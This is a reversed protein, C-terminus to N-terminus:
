EQENNEEAKKIANKLKALAVGAEAIEKSVGMYPQAYRRERENECLVLNDISCNMANGDKFMIIGGKPIPGNHLEWTVRHLPEFNYSTPKCGDRVKIWKYKYGDKTTRVVITGIDMKNVPTGDKQFWTKRGYGKQQIRLAEQDSKFNLTRKLYTRVSTETKNPYRKRFEETVQKLTRGPGLEKLYSVMEPTFADERMRINEKKPHCGNSCKLDKTIRTQISTRSKQGPWKKEFEMYVEKSSLGEQCKQRIFSDMEPTWPTHKGM